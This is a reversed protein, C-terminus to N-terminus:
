VEEVDVVEPANEWKQAFEEKWKEMMEPDPSDMMEKVRIHEEDGAESMENVHMEGMRMIEDMSEGVFEEDCPGGMDRCTLAKAM